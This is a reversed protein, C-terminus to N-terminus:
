TGAAVVPRLEAGPVPPAPEASAEAAARETDEISSRGLLADLQARLKRRLTEGDSPALLFAVVACIVAGLVLGNIFAMADDSSSRAPIQRRLRAPLYQEVESRSPIYDGVNSLRDGVQSLAEGSTERAQELLGRAQKQVKSARSEFFM